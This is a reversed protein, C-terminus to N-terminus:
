PPKMSPGSLASLRVNALNISGSASRDFTFRVGRVDTLDAGPFDTLPVRITRLIQHGRPPGGIAGLYSSVQVAGPLGGGSQVLQVSFNTPSPDALSRRSVRFDLTAYGSIDAGVGPAQSNTQFFGGPATWSIVGAKQTPDHEPVGGHSITIGASQ